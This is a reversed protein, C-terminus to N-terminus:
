NVIWFSTKEMASGRVADTGSYSQLDGLRYWRVITKGTIM